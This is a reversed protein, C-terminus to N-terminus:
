NVEVVSCRKVFGEGELMRWICSVREPREPHASSFENVHALMRPDYVLGTRHAHTHMM